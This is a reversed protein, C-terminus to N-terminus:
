TSQGSASPLAAIQSPINVGDVRFLIPVIGSHTLITQPRGWHLSYIKETSGPVDDIRNEGPGTYVFVWDGTTVYGDGFWYLNDRIPIAAGEQQGIGLMLGFQGVNILENARLIIRELNPKGRDYVGVVVLETITDVIM